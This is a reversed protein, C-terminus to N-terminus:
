RPVQGIKDTVATKFNADQYVVTGEKMNKRMQPEPTWPKTEPTKGGSPRFSNGYDVVEREGLLRYTKPEFILEHRLGHWTQGVAIGKRGAFDVADKTLTVGPIKAAAKFMAALSAPQIYTERITDGVTIFAQVDPPNGGHSNRYLWKRMAAPDTPLGRRYAPSNHCNVPPKRIDVNEPQEAVVAGNKDPERDCLWVGEARPGGLLLGARKGSVSLWAKRQGSHGPQGPLEAQKGQSEFYIFQDPRPKLEPQKEATTAARLLIETAGAQAGPTKGGVDTAPALVLVAAIGGALGATAVSGLMLGRRPARHRTTMENMLHARRAAHREAPMDRPPPLQDIM